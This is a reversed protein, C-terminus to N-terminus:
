LSNIASVIEKNIKTLKKLRKTFEDVFMILPSPALLSTSALVRM